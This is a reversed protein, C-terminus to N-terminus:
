GPNDSHDLRLRMTRHPIGADPYEDSVAVFGFKEYFGLAHTQASLEVEAFDRERAAALLERLIAAGVGNGRADFVVAMRGIKGDPLLRGTGIAKGDARRALVHLCAEDRGDWELAPPVRQEDIFVEARVARLAAEDRPWEAHAVSFAFPKSM